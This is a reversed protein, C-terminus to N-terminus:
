LGLDQPESQIDLEVEQKLQRKHSTINETPAYWPEDQPEVKVEKMTNTQLTVKAPPGLVLPRGMPTHMDLREVREAKVREREARAKPSRPRGSIM